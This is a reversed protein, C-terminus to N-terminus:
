VRIWGPGAAGEAASGSRGLALQLEEESGGGGVRGAGEEVDDDDDATTTSSTLLDEPLPLGAAVSM